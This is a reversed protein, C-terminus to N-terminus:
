LNATALTPPLDSVKGVINYRKKFFDYWDSLVKQEADPLGTWDSIADEDKLSSKGLAKSADKGAFLNYSGGQGYTDRKHTVDFITGKIAVYIPKNVDSGDFEALQELTYPDDKPPLLNDRPAQMITKPKEEESNSTETASPKQNYLRHYVYVAPLALVLGILLTTISLM